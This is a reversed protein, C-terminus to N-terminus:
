HNFPIEQDSHSEEEDGDHDDGYGIESFNKHHLSSDHYVVSDSHGKHKPIVENPSLSPSSIADGQQALHHHHHYGHHQPSPSMTSGSSKYPYSSYDSHDNTPPSTFQPSYVNATQVQGRASGSGKSRTGSPSPLPFQAVPEERPVSQPHRHGNSQVRQTPTSQVSHADHQFNMDKLEKPFEKMLQKAISKGYDGCMSFRPNQILEELVNNALGKDFLITAVIRLVDKNQVRNFLNKETILENATIADDPGQDEENDMDV